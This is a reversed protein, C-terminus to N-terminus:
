KVVSQITVKYGTEATDTDINVMWANLKLSDAQAIARMRRGRDAFFRPSGGQRERALTTISNYQRRLHASWEQNQHRSTRDQICM